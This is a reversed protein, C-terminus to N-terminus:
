ILQRLYSPVSVLYFVSWSGTDPTQFLIIKAGFNQPRKQLEKKEAKLKKPKEKVEAFNKAVKAMQQTTAEQVKLSDLEETREEPGQGTKPRSSLLM